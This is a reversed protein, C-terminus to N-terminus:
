LIFKPNILSTLSQHLTWRRFPMFSFARAKSPFGRLHDTPVAALVKDRQKLPQFILDQDQHDNTFVSNLIHKKCTVRCLVYQCITIMQTQWSNVLCDLQLVQFVQINCTPEVFDVVLESPQCGGPESLISFLPALQWIRKSGSYCAFRLPLIWFICDPCHCGWTVVIIVHCWWCIAWMKVIQFHIDPHVSRYM